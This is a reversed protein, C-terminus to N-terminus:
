WKRLFNSYKLDLLIFILKKNRCVKYYLCTCSFKKMVLDSKDKVDHFYVHLYGFPFKEEDVCKVAFTEKSIRQVLPGPTNCAIKMIDTKMENTIELLSLSSSKLQLPQAEKTCKVALSIHQCPQENAVSKNIMQKVCNDIYCKSNVTLLRNLENKDFMEFLNNNVNLCSVLKGNSDQITPLEIIGRYDNGRNNVRVSMIELQSDTVLKIADSNQNQYIIQTTLNSSTNVLKINNDRLIINCKKNKCRAGRTGNITNCSPCRKIGRKTPKGLDIFKDM